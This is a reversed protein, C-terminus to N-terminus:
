TPAVQVKFTSRFLHALPTKSTGCAAICKKCVDKRDLKDLKEEHVNCVLQFLLVVCGSASGNSKSKM